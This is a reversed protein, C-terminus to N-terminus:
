ILGSKHTKVAAYTLGMLRKFDITPNKHKKLIMWMEETILDYYVTSLLRPIMKNEWPEDLKLKAFVKDVMAGTVFQNVIDAETDNKQGDRRPAGMEKLNNYKFENRVIKAWVRRGNKNVFDYNKIVVGEGTGQGDKILFQNSDVYHQLSSKTPNQITALPPIYDIQFEDLWEKYQDYKVYRYGKHHLDDHELVDFVYFRRWSNDNYTKLTHPVLWEGFLRINPRALLLGRLANNEKAWAMFGANDKELTLHRNRSGCQIEENMWVSSNTGDIKPFIYCEGFLLGNVEPHDIKEVHQYKKFQNM